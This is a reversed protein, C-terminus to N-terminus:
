SFLTSCSRERRGPWPSHAPPAERAPRLAWPHICMLGLHGLPAESGERAMRLVVALLEERRRPVWLLPHKTVFDLVSFLRSLLISNKLIWM